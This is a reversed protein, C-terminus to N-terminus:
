HAGAAAAAAAAVVHHLKNASSEITTQGKGDIVRNILELKEELLKWMSEDDANEALIYHCQVSAAQGIRHARDEAQFHIAPDWMLEAFLVTSAATLTLGTGGSTISLLAVRCSADAQFREVNTQRDAAPTAGDIYMYGVRRAILHAELARLVSQHHAFLLVKTTEDGDLLDDLHQCVFPVKAKGTSQWRKLAYEDTASAPLPIEPLTVYIRKRLKPPLQTLVQAKTRRVMVERALIAHLEHLNRGGRYGLQGQVLCSDCYRGGFVSASPFLDPRLAHLQPYLQFPQSTAPTGSILVVRRAQSEQLLPLMTQTRQAEGHKIYHSEDVIVIPFKRRMLEESYVHLLDFSVIVVRTSLLIQQKGDLLVQIQASHLSRFAQAASPGGGGLWRLLESRWTLRLSSPCVILLPWESAYVSALAIAQISKGLGMEDALLMRGGNRAGFAVGERQFPYLSQWLLSPVLAEIDPTAPTATTARALVQETVPVVVVELGPTRLGHLQAVCADHSAQPITWVRIPAASSAAAASEDNNSEEDHPKDLSEFRAGEMSQFLAHVMPHIAPRTQIAIRQNLVLQLEVKVRLMNWGAQESAQEQRLAAIEVQSAQNQQRALAQASLKAHAHRAKERRKEEAILARRDDERLWAPWRNRPLGVYPELTKLLPLNNNNELPRKRSSMAGVTQREPLFIRQSLRVRETLQVSRPPKKQGDM